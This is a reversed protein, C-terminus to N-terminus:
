KQEELRKVKQQLQQIQQQQQQMAKVLVATLKEYDLRKYGQQDQQVVEPIVPEVQQAIFGIQRGPPLGKLAASDKFFFYHPTLKEVMTLADELPHV